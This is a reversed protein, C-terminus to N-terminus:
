TGTTRKIQEIRAQHATIARSIRTRSDRDSERTLAEEMRSLRQRTEDLEMESFFKNGTAGYVTKMNERNTAHFHEDGTLHSIIEIAQLLLQAPDTGSIIGKTIEGMIKESERINKQYDAYMQRTQERQKKEMEISHYAKVNLPGAAENLANKGTATMEGRSVEKRPEQAETPALIKDLLSLDIAM